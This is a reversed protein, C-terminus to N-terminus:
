RLRAFHEVGDRLWSLITIEIASGSGSKYSGSSGFKTLGNAARYGEPTTRNPGARSRAAM